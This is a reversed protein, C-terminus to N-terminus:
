CNSFGEPHASKCVDHANARLAGPVGASKAYSKFLESLYSNAVWGIELISHWSKFPCARHQYEFRRCAEREAYCIGQGSVFLYDNEHAFIAHKIADGVSLHINLAGATMETSADSSSTAQLKPIVAIEWQFEGIRVEVSNM